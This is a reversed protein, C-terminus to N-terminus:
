PLVAQNQGPAVMRVARTGTNSAVMRTVLRYLPDQAADGTIICQTSQGLGLTGTARLMAIATEKTLM